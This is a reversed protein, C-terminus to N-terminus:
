VFGSAVGPKLRTSGEYAVRFIGIFLADNADIVNEPLIWSKKM